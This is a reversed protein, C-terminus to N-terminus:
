RLDLGEGIWAAYLLVVLTEVAVIAIYIMSLGTRRLLLVEALAAALFGFMILSIDFPAVGATALKMGVTALAYGPATAVILAPAPLHAFVATQM